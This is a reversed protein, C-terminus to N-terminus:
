PLKNYKHFNKLHKGVLRYTRKGRIHGEDVLIKLIPEITERDSNTLSCIFEVKLAELPLCKFLGLVKKYM